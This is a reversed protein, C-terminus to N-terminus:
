LPLPIDGWSYITVNLGARKLEELESLMWRHRSLGPDSRVYLKGGDRLAVLMFLGDLRRKFVLSLVLSSRSM